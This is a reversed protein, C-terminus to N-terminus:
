RLLFNKTDLKTCDTQVMLSWSPLIELPQVMVAVFKLCSAFPPAHDGEISGMWNSPCVFCQVFEQDIEPGSHLAVAAPVFYYRWIPYAKSTVELAEAVPEMTVM